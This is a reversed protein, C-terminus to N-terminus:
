EILTSQALVALVALVYSGEEQLTKVGSCVPLEGLRTTYRRPKTSQRMGWDEKFGASGVKVTESGFRRNIGDLTQMLAHKRNTDFGLAQEREQSLGNLEVGAKAYAYGEKYIASLGLLAVAVISQTCDTAGGLSLRISKAYQPVDSHPSTRIYVTIFSATSGQERLKVGARAVYSSIAEQLEYLQTVRRGFSRSSVIAKRPQAQELELCAVGNLETVTRALVVSWKSRVLDTPLGALDWATCVDMEKLQKSLRRGVGWVDGVDTRQLVDNLQDTDLEALNCVQALHPPYSNPQNPKREADKAVHNALKSLTKTAGIGIGIPIGICRWVRARIAKARATANRVGHLSIFSEDISYVEQEVGLPRVLEHMRQSMDGYLEFNASLAVLGAERELHKIQFYPQAMRVGLAKAEESRAIACGDNNSLVVVPRNNLQPQFVRECSVYFNNGDVLAYM